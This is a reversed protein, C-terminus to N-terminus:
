EWPGEGLDNIHAKEWDVKEQIEPPLNETRWLKTTSYPTLGKSFAWRVIGPYEDDWDYKTPDGDYYFTAVELLSQRFLEKHQGRYRWGYAKSQVIHGYEHLVESETCGTGLVVQRSGLFTKGGRTFEGGLYDQTMLSEAFNRRRWTATVGFHANLKAFMADIQSNSPIM